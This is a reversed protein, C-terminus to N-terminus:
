YRPKGRRLLKYSQHSKAGGEARREGTINLDISNSKMYDYIPKKKSIRSCMDSVRMQRRDAEDLLRLFTPTMIKCKTDGNYRKVAWPVRRLYADIIGSHEKSLVPVGYHKVAWVVSKGRIREIRIDYREELYKLHDKTAQYELGPNVNVFHIKHLFDRFYTAIIHVIIDSDSGGSVSVLVANHNSLYYFFKGLTNNIRAIDAGM